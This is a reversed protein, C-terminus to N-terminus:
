LMHQRGLDPVLGMDGANPGLVPAGTPALSSWWSRFKGVQSSPHPCTRHECSDILSLARRPSPTAAATVPHTCWPGPVATPAGTHVNGAKDRRGCVGCEVKTSNM